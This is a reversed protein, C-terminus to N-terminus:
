GLREGRILMAQEISQEKLSMYQIREPDNSYAKFDAMEPFTVIHIEYPYGFETTIVSPKPPRVRYLLLGNHRELLPLVKDEFAHFTDEEGERVFVIQTFYLM